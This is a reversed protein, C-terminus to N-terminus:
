LTRTSPSEYDLDPLDHIQDKMTKIIQDRVHSSRNSIHQELIPSSNYVISGLTIFFVLLDKWDISSMQILSQHSNRIRTSKQSPITSRKEKKPKSRKHSLSTDIPIKDSSFSITSIDPSECVGIGTQPFNTQNQDNSDKISPEM